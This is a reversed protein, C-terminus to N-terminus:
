FYLICINILHYISVSYFGSKVRSNLVFLELEECFLSNDITALDCSISWFKITDEIMIGIFAECYKTFILFSPCIVDNISYKEGAVLNVIFDSSRSTNIKYSSQKFANLDKGWSVRIIYQSGFSLFEIFDSNEFEIHGMISKIELTCHDSDLIFNQSEASFLSLRTLDLSFYSHFIIM